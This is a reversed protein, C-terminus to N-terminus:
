PLLKVLEDAQKGFAALDDPKIEKAFCQRYAEDGEAEAKQATELQAQDKERSAKYAKQAKLATQEYPKWVAECVPSPKMQKALQAQIVYLLGGRRVSVVLANPANPGVDQQFAGLLAVATPDASAQVPTYVSFAADGGVALTYFTANNLAEATTAPLNLNAREPDSRVAALWRDAVGDTTVSISPDKEGKVYVIADLQGGGEADPQVSALSFEAQDYGKPKQPGVLASLQKLLAERGEEEAKKVAKDNKKKAGAAAKVKAVAADRAAFYADEEPTAAFAASCTVLAVSAALLFRLM